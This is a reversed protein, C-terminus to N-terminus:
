HAHPIGPPWAGRSDLTGHRKLNSQSLYSAVTGLSSMSSSSLTTAVIALQIIISNGSFTLTGKNWLYYSAIPTTTSGCTCKQWRLEFALFSM